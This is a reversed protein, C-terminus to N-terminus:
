FVSIKTIEDIEEDESFFRLLYIGAPLGQPLNYMLFNNEFVQLKQDILKGTTNFLACQINGNYNYRIELQHGNNFSTSSFAVNSLFDTNEYLDFGSCDEDIGNDPIDIATPYISANDDNCDTKDVVFGMPPVNICTDLVTNEDGYGDGDFDLYYEYRQLGNNLAGDCDNDIADCLEVQGPFIDLNLDDCDDANDVFGPPPTLICTDVPVNIEGFGDFDSDLYYTNLAVGNNVVGDCDNDLGDCIEAFGPNMQANNDDCDIYNYYGDNDEDKFFYSEALELVDAAIKIGIKRGPIDDAPPHIGGWIRSLSTQDSADRYTAWQLVVDETPGEEFVLFENQPAIFEGMGGPFFEDGTISTLIEAAARSFTSHGSIYGAFNPTVFTPRQYPWWNEALIWGVGAQDTEPDDIFDPGRWSYLKVKGVNVDLPGALPDGEEVLEIRGPVLPFGLNSYNPLNPDSCQGNDSMARIASVPRIYDYYGKMGWATVACDHMGGGLMFYAKVDYELSTEVDVLGRYSRKFEPHDTVYNLITFWHGPPTESEPGDAWFEALVRTYDGLNVVNPEYPLGTKPNLEHGNSQRMGGEIYDYYDPYESFEDPFENLNGLAAPSIDIEQGNDTDLHASWTAVMSFGWKYEESELLSDILPPPGPDHYVIYEFNDRNYVNADDMSLAFPNVQGWEPSLFPPTNGVPNGSQDIFTSLTLPQWRNLDSITNNGPDEPFLDDNIPDYFLNAYNINENSGDEPAYNLMESAIYNGLAAPDGSQYDLSTNSIDYGLEEMKSILTQLLTFYGPSFRYRRFLFRYAAHSIAERRAEEIDVPEPVGEFPCSYGYVEKGLFYPEAVDDYIAWLDYMLISLHWLNRAHVTPRARDTRIAELTVENWERAISHDQASISDISLFSVAVFFSLILKKM